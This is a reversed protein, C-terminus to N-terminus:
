HYGQKLEEIEHEYDKLKRTAEDIKRKANVVDLFKAKKYQDVAERLYPLRFFTFPNIGAGIDELGLPKLLKGFFKASTKEGFAELLSPRNLWWERRNHKKEILKFDTGFKRLVADPDRQWKANFERSRKRADELEKPNKLLKKLAKGKYLGISEAFKTNNATLMMIKHFRLMTEMANKQEIASKMKERLKHEKQAAQKENFKKIEEIFMEAPKKATKKALAAKKAAAPVPLKGPRPM